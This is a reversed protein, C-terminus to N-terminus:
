KVKLVVVKEENEDQDDTSLIRSPKPYVRLLWVGIVWKLMPWKDIVFTRDFYVEEKFKWFVDYLKLWIDHIYIVVKVYYASVVYLGSSM